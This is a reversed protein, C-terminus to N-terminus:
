NGALSFGASRTRGNQTTVTFMLHDHRINGIPSYTVTVRGANLDAQTFTTMNLHFVFPLKHYAFSKAEDWVWTIQEPTSGLATASLRPGTTPTIGNIKLTTGPAVGAKGTATISPVPFPNVQIAIFRGACKEYQTCVTVPIKWYQLTTIVPQPGTCIQRVMVKKDIVDQYTFQQPTIALNGPLVDSTVTIRLDKPDSGTARTSWKTADLPMWDSCSIIPMMGSTYPLPLAVARILIASKVFKGTGAIRVNIAVRVTGAGQFTGYVSLRGEIIDESTFKSGAAVPTGNLKLGAKLIPQSANYYDYVGTVEYELPFREWGTNPYSIPAPPNELYTDYLTTDVKYFYDTEDLPLEGNEIVAKTYFSTPAVRKPLPVTIINFTVRYLGNGAPQIVPPPLCPNKIGVQPIRKGDSGVLSFMFYDRVLPNYTLVEKQNVYKLAGDYIHGMHFMTGVTVEVDNLYLKGNRPLSYVRCQVAEVNAEVIVHENLDAM